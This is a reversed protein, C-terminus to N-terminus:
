GRGNSKRRDLKTSTLARLLKSLGQSGAKTIVVRKPIDNWYGRGDAVGWPQNSSALGADIDACGISAPRKILLCCDILYRERDRDLVAHAANNTQERRDCRRPASHALLAMAQCGWGWFNSRSRPASTDLLNQLFESRGM